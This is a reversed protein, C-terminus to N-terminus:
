HYPGPGSRRSGSFQRHERLPQYERGLAGAVCWLLFVRWLKLPSRWLGVQILTASQGRTNVLIQPEMAWPTV